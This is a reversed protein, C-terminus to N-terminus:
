PRLYDCIMQIQEEGDINLGVDKLIDVVCNDPDSCDVRLAQNGTRGLVVGYGPLNVRQYQGKMWQIWVSGDPVIDDWGQPGQFHVKIVKEPHDKAYLEQRFNADVVRHDELNTFLTLL